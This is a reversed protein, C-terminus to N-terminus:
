RNIPINRDGVSGGVAAAAMDTTVGDSGFDNTQGDLQVAGDGVLLCEPGLGELIQGSDDVGHTQAQEGGESEKKTM